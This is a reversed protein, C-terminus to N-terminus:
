WGRYHGANASGRFQSIRGFPGSFIPHDPIAPTNIGAGGNELTVGFLDAINHGTDDTTVVMSMGNNVANTLATREAATYTATQTWGTFFVNFGALTDATATMVGSGILIPRNVVGSAGFLTPDALNGRARAFVEGDPLAWGSDARSSNFGSCVCNQAFLPPLTFALILMSICIRLAIRM